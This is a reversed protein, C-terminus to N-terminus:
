ERWRWYAAAIQDGKRYAVNVLTVVNKDRRFDFGTARSRALAKGNLSVALSSAIPVHSLGLPYTGMLGDIIAQNVTTMDRKCVNALVGGTAKIVEKYGHAMHAMCANQCVGGYVHLQAKSGPTKTGTFLDIYPQVAHDVKAQTSLDLGCRSTNQYGIVQALSEPYEDTYVIVVLAAGTRIRTLDGAARPLHGTVAAGANVLGYESGGEYGPPNKVCSWFVAQEDPLLFRDEGGDDRTRSTIRSCFKGVAQKYTGKPNCVNTVGMRFDLGSLLAQSFFRNANIPADQRSDSMSGSEDMVWIIDAAPRAGTEGRDCGRALQGATRALAGGDTHDDLLLGTKKARDAYSKSSAVAGMVVLRWKSQDGSDLLYGNGDLVTRGYPDKRPEFRKVVLIRAVLDDVPWGYTSPLQGLDTSLKGLTAAALENRVTPVRTAKSYKIDVTVRIAHYGDHTRFLERGLEHVRRGHGDLRALLKTVEAEVSSLARTSLVFGAVEQDFGRFDFVAGADGPGPSAVSLELYSATRELAVAWDGKASRRLQVQRRGPSSSTADRCIPPGSFTDDVVADAAESDASSDEVSSDRMGPDVCAGLVLAALPLLTLSCRITM